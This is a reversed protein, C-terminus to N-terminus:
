SKEAACKNKDRWDALFKEADAVVMDPMTTAWVEAYERDYTWAIKGGAKASYKTGDASVLM